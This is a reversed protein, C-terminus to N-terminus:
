FQREKVFYDDYIMLRKNLPRYGKCHLSEIRQVASQNAKTLINEVNFASYFHKDVIELIDSFYEKKEYKSQLDIRLVGYHNFEDEAIRHFMEVTGIITRENKEVITWRVFHRNQYSFEWFEIAQKMREITRYYFNDGHCNDSNFLPVAKEDSYCKLLSDADNMVTKRLIIKKGQYVPCSRYVDFSDKENVIDSKDFIHSM